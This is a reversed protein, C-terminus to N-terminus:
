FIFFCFQKGADFLAVTKGPFLVDLSIEAENQAHDFAKCVTVFIHVVEELDAADTKHFGNVVKVVGDTDFETGIGNGHDDALDAAIQPIVVADADAARQAVDCVFGDM